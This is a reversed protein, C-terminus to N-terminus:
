EKVSNNSDNCGAIYGERYLRQLIQVKDIRDTAYELQVIFDDIEYKDLMKIEQDEHELKKQKGLTKKLENIWKEIM